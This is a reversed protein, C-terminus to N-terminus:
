SENSLGETMEQEVKNITNKMFAPYIGGALLASKLKEAFEKIGDRKGDNYHKHAVATNHKQLREIEQRQLDILGLAELRLNSLCDMDRRFPCKECQSRDCRVLAEVIEDATYKREDMIPM